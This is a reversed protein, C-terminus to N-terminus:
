HSKHATRRHQVMYNTPNRNCSGIDTKPLIADACIIHEYIGVRWTTAYERSPTLMEVATMPLRSMTTGAGCDPQTRKSEKPTQTCRTSRSGDSGPQKMIPANNPRATHPQYARAFGPRMTGSVAVTPYCSSAARSRSVFNHVCAFRDWIDSDTGKNAHCNSFDGHCVLLAASSCGFVAFIIRQGAAPCDCRFCQSRQPKRLPFIPLSALCCSVQGRKSPTPM